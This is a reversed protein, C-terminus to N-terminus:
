VSLIKSWGVPILTQLGPSQEDLDLLYLAHKTLNEM